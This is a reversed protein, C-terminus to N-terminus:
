NGYIEFVWTRGWGSVTLPVNGGTEETPLTAAQVNENFVIEKTTRWLAIDNRMNESGNNYGPHVVMKSFLHRKGGRKLTVTGVFGVAKVEAPLFSCHAATLIWRSNIITGGCFHRNNTKIRLSVQHPFQGISADEGNVIRGTTSLKFSDISDFANFITFNSSEASALAALSALIIVIFQKM